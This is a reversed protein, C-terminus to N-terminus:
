GQPVVFIPFVVFLGNATTPEFSLLVRFKRIASAPTEETMVDTFGIIVATATPSRAASSIIAASERNLAGEAKSYNYCFM